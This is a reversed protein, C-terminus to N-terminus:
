GSEGKFGIYGVIGLGFCGVLFQLRVFIFLIFLQFGLSLRSGVLLISGKEEMGFLLVFIQYFVELCFEVRLQQQEMVIIFVQFSIFMSEELEKFGLVNGVDGSVFSVVNEILIYVGLFKIFDFDFEFFYFFNCLWDRSYKLCVWFDSLFELQSYM